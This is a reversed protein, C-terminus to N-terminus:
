WVAGRTACVPFLARVAGRQRWVLDLGDRTHPWAAVRVRVADNVQLLENGLGQSAGSGQELAQQAAALQLQVAEVRERQPRGYIARHVSLSLPCARVRM